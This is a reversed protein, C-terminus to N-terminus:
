ITKDNQIKAHWQLLTATAATNSMMEYRCIVMIFPLGKCVLWNLSAMFTKYVRLYKRNQNILTIYVFPIAKEYQEIKVQIYIVKRKKGKLVQLTVEGFASSKSDYFSIYM